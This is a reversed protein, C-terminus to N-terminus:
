EYDLKRLRTASVGAVCIALPVMSMPEPIQTPVYALGNYISREANPTAAVYVVLNGGPDAIAAGVDAQRAYWAGNGNGTAYVEGTAGGDSDTITTLAGSTFGANIAQVGAAAGDNAGYIISIDYSQGPTLGTLTTAIEPGTFRTANNQGQFGGSLTIGVINFVGASRDNWFSTVDGVMSFDTGDSLDGDSLQTNGSGGDSAAVFTGIIAGSAIPGSLLLALASATLQTLCPFSRM